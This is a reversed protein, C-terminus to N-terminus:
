KGAAAAALALWGALMALGGIPTIAGLWRIGTTSLLYLSGSFIASGVLLSWGSVQLWTSERGSSALLGVALLALASYMHYQAGTNFIANLRETPLGGPLEGLSKFRDSLGHAGFAGAAIALFGWIAGLRIWITATM